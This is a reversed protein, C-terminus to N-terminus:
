VSAKLESLDNASRYFHLQMFPTLVEFHVTGHRDLNQGRFIAHTAFNPEDEFDLIKFNGNYEWLCVACFFKSKLIHRLKYASWPMLIVYEPMQVMSDQLVHTIHLAPWLVHLKPWFTTVHIHDIGAAAQFHYMYVASYLRLYRVRVAMDKNAIEVTLYLCNTKVYRSYLWLFLLTMLLVFLLLIVVLDFM